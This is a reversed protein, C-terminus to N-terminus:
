RKTYEWGLLQYIHRNLPQQINYMTVIKSWDWPDERCNMSTVGGLLIRHNLAKMNSFDHAIRLSDNTVITTIGLDIM